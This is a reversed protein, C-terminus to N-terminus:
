SQDAKNNNAPPNEGDADKQSKPLRGSQELARHLAFEIQGNLSRFEDEAWGRLAELVEPNIRLLFSDRKAM